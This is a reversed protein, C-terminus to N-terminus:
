FPSKLADRSDASMLSRCAVKSRGFKSAAMKSRMVPMEASVSFATIARLFVSANVRIYIEGSYLGFDIVCIFYSCISFVFISFAANAAANKNTKWEAFASIVGLSKSPSSLERM